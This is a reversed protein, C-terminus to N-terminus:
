NNIENLIENCQKILRNKDEVQKKSKFYFEVFYILNTKKCYIFSIRFGSNAGRNMKECYFKKAVYADCKFDKGLGSVPAYQPSPVKGNLEIHTLLAAYFRHLDEKLSPCKKKFSKFERKFKNTMIPLSNEM